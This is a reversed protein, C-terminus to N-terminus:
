IFIKNTFFQKKIAQRINDIGAILIVDCYLKEKYQQFLNKILNQDHKEKLTPSIQSLNDKATRSAM